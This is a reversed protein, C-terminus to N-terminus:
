VLTTDLMSVYNCQIVHNKWIILQTPTDTDTGHGHGYGYGHKIIYRRTFATSITITIRQYLKSITVLVLRM